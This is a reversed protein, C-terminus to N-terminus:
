SLISTINRVAHGDEKLKKIYNCDALTWVVMINALSSFKHDREESNENGSSISIDLSILYHETSFISGYMYPIAGNVSDSPRKCHSFIRDLFSM